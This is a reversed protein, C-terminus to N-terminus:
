HPNYSVSLEYQMIDLVSCRGNGAPERHFNSQFVAAPENTPIFVQLKLTEKVAQKQDTDPERVSGKGRERDRKSETERERWLMLCGALWPAIGAATM